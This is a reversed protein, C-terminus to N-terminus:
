AQSVKNRMAMAQCLYALVACFGTLMYFVLVLVPTHGILMAVLAGISGGAVASMLVGPLILHQEETM